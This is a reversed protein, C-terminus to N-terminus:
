VRRLSGRVGLRGTRGLLLGVLSKLNKHIAHRADCDLHLGDSALEVADGSTVVDVLFEEGVALRLDGGDPADGPSMLVPRVTFLFRMRQTASMLATAVIWADECSPGIPLL